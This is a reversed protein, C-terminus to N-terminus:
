KSTGEMKKLKTYYNPLEKLHAAAIKAVDIINSEATLDAVDTHEQEVQMGMALQRIYEPDTPLGLKVAIKSALEISVPQSGELVLGNNYHIDESILKAIDRPNM